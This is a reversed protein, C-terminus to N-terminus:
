CRLFPLLFGAIIAPNATADEILQLVGELLSPSVARFGSGPPKDLCSDPFDSLDPIPNGSKLFLPTRFTRYIKLYRVGSKGRIRVVWVPAFEERHIPM